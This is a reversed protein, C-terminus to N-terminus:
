TAIRPCLPPAAARSRLVDYRIVVRRNRARGAPDDSGDAHVNPAAPDTQGVGRANLIGRELCANAALWDVVAAARRESLLQNAEPTGRSDTHGVIEISRAGETRLREAVEGLVRTAEPALDAKGFEFLLDSSLQIPKAPVTPPPTDKPLDSAPPKAERMQSQEVIALWAATASASATFVLAIYSVTLVAAALRRSATPWTQGANRGNGCFYHAADTPGAPNQRGKRLAEKTEATTWFGGLYAKSENACRVTLGGLLQVHLVIIIAFLGLSWGLLAFVSGLMHYAALYWTLLVAGISIIHAARKLLEPEPVPPVFRGQRGFIALYVNAGAVMVAGIGAVYPDFLTHTSM